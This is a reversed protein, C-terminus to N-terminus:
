FTYTWCQAGADDVGSQTVATKNATAYAAFAACGVTADHFSTAETLNEALVSILTLLINQFYSTQAGQQRM